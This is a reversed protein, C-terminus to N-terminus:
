SYLYILFERNGKPGLLPSAVTGSSKLGSQRAFEVVRFIAEEHLEEHLVVGGRPVKERPLEFQPKILALLAFSHFLPLLPPILKTISIFSADMVALDLPEAFLAATLQRANCREFVVVAPNQRIKWDLQGYAVDVAYVKKAGHQLLCDTFGGSSAGVDLCIKDHPEIKFHELGKELKLGGRSVYPCHPKIRITASDSCLYGAKDIRTENVLVEGAGILARAKEQDQVLGRQLLLQDLRIKL